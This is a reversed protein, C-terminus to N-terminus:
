VFNNVSGKLSKAKREKIKDERGVEGCILPALPNHKARNQIVASKNYNAYCYLCGNACSNYMGIDISVACNCAPRQAKDKPMNLKSGRLKEFLHDDVCKAQSIGFPQLDLKEACADINLGYTHAIKALAAALRIKEEDAFDLLGLKQLNNQV